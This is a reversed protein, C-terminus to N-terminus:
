FMGLKVRIKAVEMVAEDKSMKRTKNLFRIAEKEFGGRVM